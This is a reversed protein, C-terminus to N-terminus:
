KMLLMRKTSIFNSGDIGHAELRYFYVGSSLNSANFITEHVGASLDSNLINVVEQGLTNYLKINVKANVPLAFRITTRPNFPNPYNQDLSFQKPIGLDVEVTKSYHFSGDLDVQKLRYYYKGALTSNDTYSYSSKETTTGNGEIFVIESFRINDKSREISFGANNLETATEWLLHVKGNESSVTFSTLEVPIPTTIQALNSFQSVTDSNYAYVRYTYTTTDSVTTDTYTVVDAGVTDITAFPEVSITDGLKRQIIFGLENTSNDTWSLDVKNTDPMNLIAVLDSPAEINSLLTTVTVENTYGSETFLNYAKVRYKYTTTDLVETDIFSTDNANVTDIVEFTSPVGGVVQREVIFGDENDSSDKWSLELKKFKPEAFLEGPAKIAPWGGEPNSDFNHQVEISNLARSYIALINFLGKWEYGGNIEDAIALPYSSNWNSFNGGKVGSADESGNIYIKEVGDLDRTYVIQTITSTQPESSSIFPPNGKDNTTTTRLREVYTNDSEQMLMFNRNDKDQSLTVIEASQTKLTPKVWAEITIENTSTLTDILKTAAIGTTITAASKVNLGYQTWEVAGPTNIQLNLPTGVGSMDNITTGSGEQFLYLLVLDNSVRENKPTVKLTAAISTDSGFTNSVIVRFTSNNDSVKLTDIEYYMGNAGPIDVGNKQWQYSLPSLGVANVSFEVTEGEISAENLPQTTILPITDSEISLSFNHNIENSSLSRNYIGAYYFTGLWYEGGWSAGGIALINSISWSNLFDGAISDSAEEVGDVYIKTKGDAARAFVVHMLSNKVVGGSTQTSTGETIAPNTRVIGEIRDETQQVAFNRFASAIALSIISSSNSSGQTLNNPSVWLEVTLENSAKCSDILKSAPSGSNINTPEKINLGEQTWVVADSDPITLNLPSDVGSIDNITAGSGEKFDYAAILSATVRSGAATVYLTAANSSDSGSSNTVKVSFESGNDALVTAPTTYISDTAGGIAVGDKYWQYTLTDGTVEISFTATQGEIVGQNSPQKTIVPAQSFVNISSIFVISLCLYFTAKIKM